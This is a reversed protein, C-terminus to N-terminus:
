KQEEGAENIIRNIVEYNGKCIEDKDLLLSNYEKEIEEDKAERRKIICKAIENEILEMAISIKAVDPIM